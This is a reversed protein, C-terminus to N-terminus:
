NTVKNKNANAKHPKLGEEEESDEEKAEIEEELEDRKAKARSLMKAAVADIEVQEYPLLFDDPPPFANTADRLLYPEPM